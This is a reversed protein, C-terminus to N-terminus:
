YTFKPLQHKYDSLSGYPVVPMRRAAGLGLDTLHRLNMLLVEVCRWDIFSHRHFHHLIGNFSLNHLRVKYLAEDFESLQAVKAMVDKRMMYPTQVMKYEKKKLFTLAYAILAQNLAVGPGTLYYGRHGVVGAGRQPDYGGIMSLLEHHTKLGDKPRKEGWTKVIINDKQVNSVAM